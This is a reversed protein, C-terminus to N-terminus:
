AFTRGSLAAEAKMAHMSRDTNELTIKVIIDLEKRLCVFCLERQETTNECQYCVCLTGSGLMSYSTVSRLSTFILSAENELSCAM